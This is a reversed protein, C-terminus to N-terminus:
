GKIAKNNKNSLAKTKPPDINGIKQLHISLKNLVKKRIRSIASQTLGLETELEKQTMFIDHFGFLM